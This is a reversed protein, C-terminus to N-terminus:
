PTESPSLETHGIPFGMLWEVWPPNLEGHDGLAALDESLNRCGGKKNVRGNRYSGRRTATPTSVFGTRMIHGVLSDRGRLSPPFTSNRADNATPTPVLGRHRAQVAEPLNLGVGSEARRILTDDKTGRGAGRGDMARPTPWSSSGTVSTFPVLPPLLFAIGSRTMGARPWTESFGTGGEVLCRQWTKWSWSVPDFWAFSGICNPGYAPANGTSATAGGPTASTRARSGEASSM